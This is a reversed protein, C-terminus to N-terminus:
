FREVLHELFNELNAEYLSRRVGLDALAKSCSSVYTSSIIEEGSLEGALSLSFAGASCPGWCTRSV